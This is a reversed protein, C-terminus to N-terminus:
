SGTNVEEVPTGPRLSWKIYEDIASRLSDLSLAGNGLVADHFSRIDFRKGLRRRAEQRLRRIEIQGIKYALAQGPTNIYRDVENVINNEALASNKLM